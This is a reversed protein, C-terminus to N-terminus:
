HSFICHSANSLSSRIVMVEDIERSALRSKFVSKNHDRWAYDDELRAKRIDDSVEVFIKVSAYELLQEDLLATVGELIILDDPGISHIIPKLFSRSKREYQPVSILHREASTMMPIFLKKVVDMHYRSLVGEGEIRRESPKLWGDLSIVHTQRGAKEMVEKLVSAVTSKGSRACGGILILRSNIADTCVDFLQKIVRSYGHLIFDIAASLSPAVYDPIVDYKEDLGAYGTRVLITKLGARRGAEIDSTTDGIMWSKGRDISLEHVAKDILGTSPKRCNCEIKLEPVEGEFGRDPHHPCVYLRDLYAGKEGLM